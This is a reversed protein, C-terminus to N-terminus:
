PSSAEARFFVESLATVVEPSPSGAIHIRMKAGRPHELEILCESACSPDSPALEVFTASEDRGTSSKGDARVVRKERGTSSRGDALVVRKKLSDANLRLAQATRHIGHTACLKVAASWLPDPICSRHVRTRRWHEFRRRVAEVRSPLPRTVESSM